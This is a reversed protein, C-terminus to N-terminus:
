QVLVSRICTAGNVRVDAYGIKAGLLRLMTDLLTDVPQAATSLTKGLASTVSGPVAIKLGLVRAELQLSGFLSAALSGALGHTSASRAVRNGIDGYSFTLPTARPSEM